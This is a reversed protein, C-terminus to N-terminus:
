GQKRFHEKKWKNFVAQTYNKDEFAKDAERVAKESLYTVLLSKIEQLDEESQEHSFLKLIELQTENLPNSM